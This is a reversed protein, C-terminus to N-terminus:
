QPAILVSVLGKAKLRAQAELAEGRQEFPGVRVRHQGGQSLLHARYGAAEAQAVLQRANAENAFVGLQLFYEAPASSM